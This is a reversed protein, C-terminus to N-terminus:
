GHHQFGVRGLPRLRSSTMTTARFCRQGRWQTIQNARVDFQRALEPLTGDGKLAPLSVKAKFAPRHNRCTRRKM